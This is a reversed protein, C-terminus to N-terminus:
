RNERARKRELIGACEATGRFRPEECREDMCVALAIFVRKGCAERASGAVHEATATPTPATQAPTRSPPLQSTTTTTPVPASGLPRPRENTTTPIAPSGLPRPRENPNLGPTNASGYPTTDAGRSGGNGGNVSANGGGDDGARPVPRGGPRVRTNGNAPRCTSSPIRQLGRGREQTFLASAVPGTCAQLM